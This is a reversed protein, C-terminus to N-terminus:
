LHTWNPYFVGQIKPWDKAWQEHKTRSGCFVYISHLQPIDHIYSIVQQGLAGSIIMFAKEDKIDSLFDVCRDVDNFTDVANVVCRLQDVTDRCDDDIIDDLNLDLWVVLFNEIVRPHPRLRSTSPVKKNKSESTSNGIIKDKKKDM